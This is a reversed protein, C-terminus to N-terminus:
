SPGPHDRPSSRLWQVYAWLAEVDGPQLHKEYAPMKLVARKLFFQAVPNTELRDCVGDEVWDQFEARNQVLDPFDAGDWSPIYGKLSGPNRRALLGGTGHCGTCGLSDARELGHAATSDEPARMGSVATVYAVLDDIRDDSIREKFAPMKLIGAERQARWTASQQRKATVGDRIWEHLEQAGSAFMMVDGEFNPVTKDTRGPNMAGRFGGPGHCGFCGMSEALRRGREAAPLHPRFISLAAGVGVAAAAIVLLIVARKM